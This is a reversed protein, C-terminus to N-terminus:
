GGGYGTIDVAFASSLRGVATPQLSKNSWCRTMELVMHQIDCHRFYFIAAHAWGLSFATAHSTQPFSLSESRGGCIGFPYGCCKGTDECCCFTKTFDEAHHDLRTLLRLPRRKILLPENVIWEASKGSRIFRCKREEGSCLLSM